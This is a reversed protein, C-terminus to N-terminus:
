ADFLSRVVKCSARAKQVAIECHSALQKDGTVFIDGYALAGLAHQLDAAHSPKPSFSDNLRIQSLIEEMAITPAAALFDDFHKEIFALHEKPTHPPALMAIYEYDIIHKVTGMAGNRAAERGVSIADPTLQAAHDIKAINNPDARLALVSGRFTEGIIVIGGYSAWMQSVTPAFPRVRVCPAKQDLGFARQLFVGIEECKIANNNSVWIPDLEEVFVCCQEIHQDNKSRALEYMSWASLAFQHGDAKLNLAHKRLATADDVSPIGAIHAIVNYDLYITAM